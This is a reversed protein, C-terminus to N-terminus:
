LQRIAAGVQVLPAKRLRRVFGSLCCGAGDQDNLSSECTAGWIVADSLLPRKEGGCQLAVIDWSLDNGAGSNARRLARYVRM